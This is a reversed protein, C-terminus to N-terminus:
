LIALDRAEVNAVSFWGNSIFRARHGPQAASFNTRAVTTPQRVLTWRRARAVAVYARACPTAYGCRNAVIIEAADDDRAFSLNGSNKAIAYRPM